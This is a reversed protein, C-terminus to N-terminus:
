YQCSDRESWRRKNLRGLFKVFPVQLLWLFGGRGLLGGIRLYTDTKYQVVGTIRLTSDLSTADADSRFMNSICM